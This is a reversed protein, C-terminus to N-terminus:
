KEKVEDVPKDAFPKEEDGAEKEPTPAVQPKSTDQKETSAEVQPADKQQRNKNVVEIQVDVSDKESSHQEEEKDPTYAQNFLDMFEPVDEQKKPSTSRELGKAILERNTLHKAFHAALYDPLYVSEGPEFTKPKGDWYGVFRETSFNTFLATKM